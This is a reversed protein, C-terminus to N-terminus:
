KQEGKYPEPLPMWAIVESDLAQWDDAFLWIGKFRNKEHDFEYSMEYEIIDMFIQKGDSKYTVLYEGYEEPLRESCPIWNNPFESCNMAESNLWKLFDKEPMSWLETAYLGFINKFKDANTM